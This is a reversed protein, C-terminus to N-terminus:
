LYINYVHCHEHSKGKPWCWSIVLVGSNEFIFLFSQIDHIFNFFFVPGYNLTPSYTMFMCNYKYACLHLQLCNIKSHFKCFKLFLVSIIYIRLTVGRGNFFEPCAGTEFLHKSYLYISCLFGLQLNFMLERSQESSHCSDSYWIFWCYSISTLGKAYVYPQSDTQAVSTKAKLELKRDTSPM